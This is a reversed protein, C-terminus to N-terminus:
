SEVWTWSSSPSAAMAAGVMSVHRRRSRAAESVARREASSSAIRALRLSPNIIVSAFPAITRRFAAARASSTGRDSDMM